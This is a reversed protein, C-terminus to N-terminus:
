VDGNKRKTYLDTRDRFYGRDGEIVCEMEDHPSVLWTHAKFGYFPVRLKDEEYAADITMPIFHWAIDPHCEAMYAKVLDFTKGVAILDEIFVIKKAGSNILILKEGERGPVFFGLDLGLRRAIITAASLGGRSIGIIEDPKLNAEIREAMDFAVQQYMEYPIYAKM